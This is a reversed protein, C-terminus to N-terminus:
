YVKEDVIAASNELEEEESDDIGEVLDLDTKDGGLKQIQAWLLSSSASHKDKRSSEKPKTNIKTSSNITNKKVM